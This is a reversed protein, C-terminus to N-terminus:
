KDIFGTVSVAVIIEEEGGDHRARKISAMSGTFEYEAALLIEIPSFDDFTGGDMEGRAISSIAKRVM